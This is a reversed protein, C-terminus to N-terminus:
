MKKETFNHIIEQTLIVNDILKRGTLFSCQFPNIINNLLPRLRKLTIKTVVKYSYQM